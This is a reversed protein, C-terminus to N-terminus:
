SSPLRDHQSRATKSEEGRKRIKRKRFGGWGKMGMWEVRNLAKPQLEPTSM